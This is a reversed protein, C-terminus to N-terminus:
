CFITTSAPKDSGGPGWKTTTEAPKTAADPAAPCGGYGDHHTRKTIERSPLDSRPAHTESLMRGRWLPRLHHAPVMVPFAALPPQLVEAPTPLPDDGHSRWHRQPPM